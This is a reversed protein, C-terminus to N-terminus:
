NGYGSDPINDYGILVTGPRPAFSLNAASTNQAICTELESLYDRYMATTDFGKAEFYKLKTGLVMLRDPYICTDTDATFSNKATGDASEAWAKSRYEFGLVENYSVGPWIQFKGQFIRWRIRPGTSIYGSLLWEWQQADEPGLMEWRKSKDWHTRPVTSDYDSPMAYKVKQFTFLTPQTRYFFIIGTTAAPTSMPVPNSIKIYGEYGSELTPDLVVETVTTNPPIYDAYVYDGVQISALVAASIFFIYDEYNSNTYLNLFAQGAAYGVTPSPFSTSQSVPQSLTVTYYGGANTISSVYTANPVGPGVVQYNTDVNNLGILQGIKTPEALNVSGPSQSWSTTFINQKVLQQWDAKRLLEYGCANMLANIQIVDQNTNGTVYTPVPVGLESTAQQVLQLMTSGM